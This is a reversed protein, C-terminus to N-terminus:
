DSFVIAINSYVTQNDEYRQVSASNSGLSGYPVIVISEFRYSQGADVNFTINETLFASTSGSLARSWIVSSDSIRRLLMSAYAGGGGFGPSLNVKLTVSQTNPATIIDSFASSTVDAPYYNENGDFSSVPWSWVPIVQVGFDIADDTLEVMNIWSSNGFNQYFKRWTGGQKVYANIIEKWVGSQRIFMTGANRWSGGVKVGVALPNSIYGDGPYAYGGWSLSTGGLCMTGGTSGDYVYETGNQNYGTVQYERTGYGSYSYLQETGPFRGNDLNGGDPIPNASLTYYTGGNDNYPKSITVTGSDSGQIYLNYTNSAQSIAAFNVLNTNGTLRLYFLNNSKKVFSAAM